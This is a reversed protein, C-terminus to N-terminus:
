KFESKYNGSFEKYYNWYEQSNRAFGQDQLFKSFSEKSSVSDPILLSLRDSGSQNIGKDLEQGIGPGGSLTRSPETKLKCSCFESGAGLTKCFHEKSM